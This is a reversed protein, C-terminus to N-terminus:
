TALARCVRRPRGTPHGRVPRPPSAPSESRRRCSRPAVVSGCLPRAARGRNRVRRRPIRCPSRPRPGPPSPRPRTRRMPPGSCSRPRALPAHPDPPRRRGSRSSDRSGEPTDPSSSRATRQLLRSPESGLDQHGTRDRAYVSRGALQMQVASVNEARPREDEGAPDCPALQRDGTEVAKGPLADPVARRAASRGVCVAEVNVDDTRALEAPRASKKEVWARLTVIRHRLSRSSFLM